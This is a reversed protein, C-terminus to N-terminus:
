GQRQTCTASTEESNGKTVTKGELMEAMPQGIKNSAKKPVVVIDSKETDHMDPTHGCVKGSRGVHDVKRIPFM